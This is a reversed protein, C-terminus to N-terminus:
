VSFDRSMLTQAILLDEQNTIKINIPDGDFLFISLGAREAVSADDTLSEDEPICYAKTIVGANFTQPTQIIRYRSRDVASSQPASSKGDESILRLSEKLHVSAVASGHVQALAFSAAIIKVSVLPRVGDHIAVLASEPINALGNKVSQFRTAGGAVIEVPTNYQHKDCIEEWAAIDEKPLAVVLRIKASYRLFADLTHLLVPRGNLELFQKPIRSGFRTGKGGAVILAYEQPMLAKHEHETVKKGM